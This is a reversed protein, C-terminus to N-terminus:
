YRSFYSLEFFCFFQNAIGDVLRVRLRICFLLLFDTEPMSCPQM